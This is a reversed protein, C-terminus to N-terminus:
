RRRVRVRIGNKPRLTILTQPVIEQNEVLEFEYRRILQTLILQMEMMAFNNGICLRPGGGFPFYSFAPQKKMNEKTFRDPIFAEPNDWLKESHHVGYTFLVMLTNPPIYVDGVQDANISTRDLVWAPPYLRMTEEIVQKTYILKPVDEFTPIQDGLINKYEQRLKQLDHPHEALLYWIWAMANATTEHGAIFLIMVEDLLQTDTMGEGTDEYRTSLLMNLLDDTDAPNKRREQIYKLIIQQSVKSREVNKKLLGSWKYWWNFYPQRIQRIIFGQSNSITEDLKHLEEESMSKSFISKAIIRFTLEMMYKYIDIVEGTEAAQDIKITFDDIVELMLDVLGAIKKRHFGPQILRRQRLWYEGDSTLLGQGIFRGVTRKTIESKTYNRHNKQLVHQIIKPDRTTIGYRSVSGLAKFAYVDNNAKLYKTLLPIPNNFHKFGNILAELIPVTYPLKPKTEPM